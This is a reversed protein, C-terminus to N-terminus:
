NLIAIALNLYGAFSVWLIYPILLFASAKNIRYFTFTTSIVSVLLIILWVFAIGYWEFNFFIISWFFNFFLQISYKKLANTKAEASVGSEIVLYSSIGMLIYLISWVIPFLYAPPSLPPKELEKFSGMANMSILGSAVGVLLPILLAVIFTKWKIKM